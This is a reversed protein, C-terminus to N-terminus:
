AIALNRINWARKYATAAILIDACVFDDFPGPDTQECAMILNDHAEAMATVVEVIRPHALLEDRTM